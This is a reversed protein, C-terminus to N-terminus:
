AAGEILVAENLLPADGTIRRRAMEAYEHNLEIGVFRRNHRLAVVGVTGSGAFPDLVTDGERSGALVCPEVLAEPFTAFHADPFPQTAITWVSRKNAGRAQQEARSMADWRDNFGAHRRGHGRQKDMHHKAGDRRAGHHPEQVPPAYAGHLRPAYDGRPPTKIADADYYYRPQKALLFVYEHARTPRDTVSEPMPNPKSNHTLVGSALAFTHPEDAVGIDWFQRGKGPRVAVVEGGQRANHHTSPVLRVDGRYIPWAKGFGETTTPALRLSAGLRACLTRLDAALRDNRTFGIRYRGNREDYHADATLYGMLLRRLFENSRRWVSGKLGKNRANDGHVYHRLISLVIPSDVVVTSTNGSTYGRVSAGYDHTLYGLASLRQDLESAHGAFQMRGRSDVSGEALYLGVLYGFEEPIARPDDPADPEPLHVTEIVDGPRLEDARVVGRQTPWQHGPTCGIRQGNRLEVELAGDRGESRNWGLVQTWKEGNWLQVTAPDLRVMDKISMPMEGKQTRAYVRTGGSLCWIIDSRLYWGDAQLAFAVRWPIGILNKDHAFTDGLNLWLTGDDSLVRWVGRFVDVITAVYEDPTPEQGIQGDVGYDRLAWYPPSTVVCQASQDALTSLGDRVDAVIIEATM